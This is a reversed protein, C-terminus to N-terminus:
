EKLFTLHAYFDSDLADELAEKFEDIKPLIELLVKQLGWTFGM